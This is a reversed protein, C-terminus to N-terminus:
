CQNHLIKYVESPQLNESAPPQFLMGFLNDPIQIVGNMAENASTENIVPLMILPDRPLFFDKRVNAVYSGYWAFEYPAAAILGSFGDFGNKIAWRELEILLNSSFFGNGAIYHHTINSTNQFINEIFEFSESINVLKNNLWGKEDIRLFFNNREERDHQRAATVIQNGIFLEKQWDFPKTFIMASDLTCYSETIRTKSFCLKVVQQTHWGNFDRPINEDTRRFLDEEAFIIPMSQIEGTKMGLLFRQSFAIIDTEPYIIYFNCRPKVYFSTSLYNYYAWEIDKIYSKVVFSFYEAYEHGAKFIRIGNLKLSAPSHSLIRTEVKEKREDFSFTVKVRLNAGEAEVTFESLEISNAGQTCVDAYIKSKDGSLIEIEFLAEYAGPGLSFYPGYFHCGTFDQTFINGHQGNYCYLYESSPSHYIEIMDKPTNANMDLM